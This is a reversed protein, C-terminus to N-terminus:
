EDAREGAHPLNRLWERLEDRGTVIPLGRAGRDDKQIIGLPDYFASPIGMERAILATSTFPASIVAICQSVLVAASTDPHVHFVHAEERLQELLRAYGRHLLRGVTRKPKHAMVLGRDAVADSIDILFCREFEGSRPTL